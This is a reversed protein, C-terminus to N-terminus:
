EDLAKLFPNDDRKIWTESLCPVWSAETLKDVAPMGRRLGRGNFIGIKIRLKSM